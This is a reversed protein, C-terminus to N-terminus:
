SSLRSRLYPLSPDLLAWGAIWSTGECSSGFGAFGIAGCSVGLDLSIRAGASGFALKIEWSKLMGKGILWYLLHM